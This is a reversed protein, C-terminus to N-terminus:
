AADQFSALARDSALTRLARAETRRVADPSIQMTRATDAGSHPTEGAMGYRLEMVRRDREPLRDLADAIAESQQAIAMEDFPTTTDDAIEVVDGLTTDRDDGIPRDLSAVVRASERVSAVWSPRLSTQAAILEDTPRHGLRQELEREVRTVAREREVAHIPLRITRSADALGRQVAQRIWWTAYTSFKHGRRWDFREVARILGLVGDQILDLLSLGQGQYPKAISVVLRLNSQVMREKAQMDGAEIRKALAIEEVATLLPIARMQGLFLQLGDIGPSDADVGWDVENDAVAAERASRAHTARDPLASSRTRPRRAPADAWFPPLDPATDMQEVAPPLATTSMFSLRRAAVRQSM